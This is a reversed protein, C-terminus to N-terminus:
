REEVMHILADEEGWLAASAQLALLTARALVERLYSKGTVQPSLPRNSRSGEPTVLASSTALGCCLETLCELVAPIRRTLGTDPWGTHIKLGQSNWLSPTKRVTM